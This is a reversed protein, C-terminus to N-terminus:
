YVFNEVYFYPGMKLGQGKKLTVDKHSSPPYFLPM